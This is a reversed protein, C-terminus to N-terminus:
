VSFYNGTIVVHSAGIFEAEKMTKWKSGGTSIDRMEISRLITIDGDKNSIAIEANNTKRKLPNTAQAFDLDDAQTHWESVDDLFAQSTM